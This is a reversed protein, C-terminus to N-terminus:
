QIIESPILEERIKGNDNSIFYSNNDKNRSVAKVLKENVFLLGAEDDCAFGSQLRADLVAQQYLPKRSPESHYHPCHSYNLFGLCEMLSLSKPRSDTYGGTFWCLSGASGGALVIGKNYAKRLVTDIGQAKWVALMNLTSGGGVIIADYSLLEEEFTKQNPNSGIFTRLVYPRLPLDTCDNYWYAIAYINDASATPVFCVRPNEKQTLTAVYRIFTRDFRGGTIFIKKEPVVASHNPTAQQANCLHAICFGALVFLFKM